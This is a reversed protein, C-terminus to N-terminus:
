YYSTAPMTYNDDDDDYTDLFPKQTGAPTGENAHKNIYIGAKRAMDRVEPNEDTRYVAALYSLAAKDKTKALEKVATKRREPDKSDLMKILRNDIM